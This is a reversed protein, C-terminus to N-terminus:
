RLSQGCYSVSYVQIAAKVNHKNSKEGLQWLTTFQSIKDSCM